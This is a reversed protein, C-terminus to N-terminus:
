RKKRWKTLIREMVAEYRAASKEVSFDLSRRRLKERDPETELAKLIGAALAKEDEPPVLFGFEEDGLIERPGSPCDTSVIRSGCAMAEILVTPLGEFRSSLVVCDAEAFYPYPNRVYGRFNVQDEVGLEWCKKKLDEELEGIGLLILRFDGVSCLRKLARLMLEHNKQYSLRGALILTRWSREKELWPHGSPEGAMRFITESVVPNYVTFVKEPDARCIKIYDERVAESVAIAGDMRRSVWPFLLERIRQFSHIEKSLTNHIVTILPIHRPSLWAAAAAVQSMESTISLMVDFDSGALINRLILINKLNKKVKSDNAIGMDRVPISPNLLHRTEGSDSRVCFVVQNGREHLANALLVTMKEAGGGDFQHMFICIRM